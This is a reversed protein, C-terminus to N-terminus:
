LLFTKVSFTYGGFEHELVMWLHLNKQPTLLKPCIAVVQVCDTLIAVELYEFVIHLFLADFVVLLYVM